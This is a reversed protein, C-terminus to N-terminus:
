NPKGFPSGGLNVVVISALMPDGLQGAKVIAMTLAAGIVASIRAGSDGDGLAERLYEGIQEDIAQALNTVAEADHEEETVTHV